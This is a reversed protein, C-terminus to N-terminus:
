DGATTPLWLTARCGGEPVNELTLRGRHAEVVARAISLGLGPRGNPRAPMQGGSRRFEDLVAAPVGPGTDRVTVGLGGGAAEARVDVRSDPAHILANEVLNRVALAVLLGDGTFGQEADALWELNVRERGPLVDLADGIAEHLAALPVRTAGLLLHGARARALLLLGEVLGTMRCALGEARRLAATYEEPTRERRLTVEIEGRLATLPTRLEHSAAGTFRREREFALEVPRVARRILLMGGGGAVLLAAPFGLLLYHGLQHLQGDLRSRDVVVRIDFTVEEPAATRSKARRAEQERERDHDRDNERDRDKERERDNERERAEDGKGKGKGRLKEPSPQRVPRKRTTLLRAARVPAAGPPEVDAIHVVEVTAADGGVAPLDGAAGALNPSAALPAGSTQLVQWTTAYDDPQSRELSKKGDVLPRDKEYQVAAALRAVEKHLVADLEREHASRVLWYLAGEAAALLLAVTVLFQVLLQRRLTRLGTV